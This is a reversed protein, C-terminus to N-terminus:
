KSTLYLIKNNYCNQRRRHLVSLSFCPWLNKFHTKTLYMLVLRQLLDKSENRVNNDHGKYSHKNVYGVIYHFTVVHLCRLPQKM